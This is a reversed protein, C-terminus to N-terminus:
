KPFVSASGQEQPGAREVRGGDRERGQERMDGQDGSWASLAVAAVNEEVTPEEEESRRDFGGDHQVKGL